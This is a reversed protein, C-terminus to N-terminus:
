QYKRPNGGKCEPRQESRPPFEIGNESAWKGLTGPSIGMAGAALRISYGDRAFLSVLERIPMEYEAENRAIWRRNLPFKIGYARGRRWITTVSVGLKQAAIRLPVGQDAYARLDTITM